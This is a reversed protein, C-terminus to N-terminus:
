NVGIQPSLKAQSDSFNILTTGTALKNAKLKKITKEVENNKVLETESVFKDHVIGLNKLNLKILKLSEAVSLTTLKSSVQDFNDVQILNIDNVKAKITSEGRVFISNQIISNSFRYADFLFKNKVDEHRM